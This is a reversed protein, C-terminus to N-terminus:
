IFNSIFGFEMCYKEIQLKYNEFAPYTSSKGFFNITQEDDRKENGKNITYFGGSIDFLLDSTKRMYFEALEYHDNAFEMNPKYFVMIFEDKSNVGCIFRNSSCIPSTFHNINM